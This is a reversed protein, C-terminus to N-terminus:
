MIICERDPNEGKKLTHHGRQKATNEMKEKSLKAHKAKERKRGRSDSTNSGEFDGDSLPEVTIAAGNGTSAHIVHADVGGELPRGPSISRHAKASTPRSTSTSKVIDGVNPEHKTKAPLPDQPNKSPVGFSKFQHNPNYNGLAGHSEMESADNVPPPASITVDPNTNYFLKRSLKEEGKSSSLRRGSAAESDSDIPLIQFFLLYPSEDVLAKEIDVLTIREQALDDFRMWHRCYESPKYPDNIPTGRVLAIYHGSEVSNGRHCIVAQLSLKFNGYLPGENGMEDDQIFHPLGIEIPIDVFTDRRVANGNPLVSYRKLCIGLIPRRSSFHIASQADSLTSDTYWPILSFIQWAPMMVEKRISGKRAKNPTVRNISGENEKLSDEPIFREEIISTSRFRWNPRTPPPNEHLPSPSDTVQTSKSFFSSVSIPSATQSSTGLDTTEVHVFSGKAMSDISNASMGTDRRELYRKVDIRNNFYMELCDELTIPKGDVTESPIAVELLRENIFKHDDGAEEKGTHFIDMKLTLLPLNLKETIFTFAESVDQQQPLAAANWGCQALADQVQKTFDTTILKGSRLLNVWLRLLVSLNRRPEDDFSNYLIAEFCDLRAFMAFLLADLYCTVGNRNEAGLLKISPNYFRLIGHLSDDLLILLDYAENVEGCAIKSRLAYRIQPEGLTAVGLNSLRRQIEKIKNDEEEIKVGQDHKSKESSFLTLHTLSPSKPAPDNGSDLMRRWKSPSASRSKSRRERKSLFRQIGSM